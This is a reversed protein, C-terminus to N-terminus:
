GDGQEPTEQAPEDQEQQVDLKGAIVPSARRSARGDLLIATLAGLVAGIPVGYLALYGFTAAFGVSTDAPFVSSLILAALLGVLAGLVMFVSFRPARRITVPTRQEDKRDGANDDM